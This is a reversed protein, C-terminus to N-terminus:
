FLMISYEEKVNLEGPSYKEKVDLEKLLDKQKEWALIAKQIQGLQNFSNGLYFYSNTALTDKRSAAFLEVQNELKICAEFDGENHHKELQQYIKPVGQASVDFVHCWLLFNLLLLSRVM